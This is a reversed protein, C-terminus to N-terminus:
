SSTKGPNFEKSPPILRFPTGPGVEPPVEYSTKEPIEQPIEDPAKEQPLTKELPLQRAKNLVEAAGPGFINELRFTSVEQHVVKIENRLSAIEDHLQRVDDRFGVITRCQEAIQARLDDLGLLKSLFSM